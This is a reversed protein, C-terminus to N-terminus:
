RTSFRTVNWNVDKFNMTVTTATIHKRQSALPLDGFLLMWFRQPQVSRAYTQRAVSLVSQFM